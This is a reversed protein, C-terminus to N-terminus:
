ILDGAIGDKLVNEICFRANALRKLGTMTEARAPWDRGNERNKHNYPRKISIEINSRRLVPALRDLLHVWISVPEITPIGIIRDSDEFLARTLSGALLDLYLDTAARSPDMQPPIEFTM